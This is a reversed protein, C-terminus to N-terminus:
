DIDLRRGFLPLFLFSIISSLLFTWVVGGAGVALATPGQGVTILITPRGPVPLKGLVMAGGSWGRIWLRIVTNTTIEVHGNLSSIDSEGKFSLILMPTPVPPPTPPPLDGWYNQLPAAGGEGRGWYDM